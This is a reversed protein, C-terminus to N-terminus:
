FTPKIVQNINYQAVALNIVPLHMIRLILFLVNTGSGPKWRMRDVRDGIIFHWYYGFLGCTVIDWFLVWGGSLAQPEGSLYNVENNIKYMWYLGYIGFTIFYLVLSLAVSRESIFGNLSKSYHGMPVSAYPEEYLDGEPDEAFPGNEYAPAESFVARQPTEAYTAQSQFTQPQPGAYNFPNSGIGGKFDEEAERKKKLAEEYTDTELNQYPNDFAM